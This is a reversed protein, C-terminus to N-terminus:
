HIANCSVNLRFKLNVDSKKLEVGLSLPRYVQRAKLQREYPMGEFVFVREILCTYVVFVIRIQSVFAM